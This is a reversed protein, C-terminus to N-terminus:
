KFREYNEKTLWYAVSTFTDTDVIKWEWIVEELGQRISPILWTWGTIVIKDIQEKKINWIKLLERVTELIQEKEQKIINEFEQRTLKKTYTLDRWFIDINKEYELTWTLKEKFEKVLEYYEYAITIDDAIKVLRSFKEKELVKNQLESIKTKDELIRHINKWDSLNNYYSSSILTDKWLAKYYSNYGLDYVFNWISLRYDLSDWWIYIWNNAIINGKWNNVNVISFDSTGWWLDAIIINWKRFLPNKELYARAAAVPEYQFEINKFWALKAANELRNQALLDLNKDSDHFKVPRWILVSEVDEWVLKELKGKYSKIIISTMEELSYEQWWIYTSIKNSSNLFSKPSLILRGLIWEIRREIWEKWVVFEREEWDYFLATRDEYTKEWLKALKIEEWYNFWISSNTTWYDLWCTITM